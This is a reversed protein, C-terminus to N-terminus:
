ERARKGLAAEAAEAGEEAQARARGGDRGRRQVFDDYTQLPELSEMSVMAMQVARSELAAAAARVRSQAREIREQQEASLPPADEPACANVDLARLAAKCGEQAQRRRAEASEKWVAGSLGLAGCHDHVGGALVGDAAALLTVAAKARRARRRAAAVQERAEAETLWPEGVDLVSELRRLVEVSRQAMSAPTGGGAALGLAGHFDRPGHELVREAAATAAAAKAAGATALEPPPPQWEGLPMTPPLPPAELPAPRAAAERRATPRHLPPPMLGRAAQEVWAAEANM